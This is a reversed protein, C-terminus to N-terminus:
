RAYLSPPSYRWRSAVAKLHGGSFAFEDEIGEVILDCTLGIFFIGLGLESYSNTLVSQAPVGYLSSFGRTSFQSKEKFQLDSIVPVGDVKVLDGPLMLELDLSFASGITSEPEKLHLEDILVVGTDTETM